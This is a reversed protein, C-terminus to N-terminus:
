MIRKFEKELEKRSIEIVTPRGHPCTYPNKTMKLQKILSEIEINTIKDGSKIAKTCAIKMIKGLRVEYTNKINSKLADVLDLFLHKVEPKGFLMPVGRVIVSNYGFEEVIFGLDRLLDINEKISEVESNSLELVEPTLLKQIAINESEYKNKYEEYIIREHAAHQDIILLKNSILDELLIYTSFIVGIIRINELFNTSQTNDHVGNESKTNDSLLYDKNSLKDTNKNKNEKIRNHYDIPSVYIESKDKDNSLNNEFLLPISEYEDKKSKQKHKFSIKQIYLHKNLTQEVANGLTDHIDEQNIFKIQQKTPHINVDIFSPDIDIFIIYIPFKNIPILSKYKDEIIKSILNNKVYRNNVYLYQHNRNGRYLTNNSIYGHINFVDTKYNIEILNDSFEKGLLTYINSILNNSKLTNFIIENDKIYKFSVDNNGLALIYIIDSIYSSEVKDSKLFNKRVPINYFLDKIIMTTGKPCGVPRQDVIKGEEVFVQTGSLDNETKTLVEVKSVTSISALAEGRFGFSMVRNLDDANSLKSTSHRKFAIRLDDELFGDGDDTVRIYNKGGNTIEVTINSSNADLSNEVLEKIISAPKEIIEGAAIKQVTLEDLIKIKSM